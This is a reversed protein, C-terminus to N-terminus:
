NNQSALSRRLEEIVLGARPDGAVGLQNTLYCFGVKHEPDAFAVQGGSGDHGFSRPTLYKRAPPSDIQFGTGWRLYPPPGSYVQEGESQVRTVESLLEDNLLRVGDTPTVLSSWITALARASAIGGAGPVESTQARSDNFGGDPTVLTFPFAGGLTLSRGFWDPDGPKLAELRTRSLKVREDTNSLHAVKTLESEPLGIFADAKLPAAVRKEFYGGVSEGTVRRVIEGVLWGFTLAHYSHRRGIVWLPEQRELCRIVTQWDLAEEFSLNERLASLGAQHALLQRVSINSKGFGGFEPWYRVVPSDFDLLGEDVLMATLISLLGKTSSFIVNLTDRSWPSFDRPDAFGGWLDLVTKGDVKVCLAAGMLPSGEFTRLFVQAVNEYGKITVGSVETL